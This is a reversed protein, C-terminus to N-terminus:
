EVYEEPCPYILKEIGTLALDFLFGFVIAVVLVAIVILVYSSKKTAYARM